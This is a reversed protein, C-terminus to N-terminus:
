TRVNKNTKGNNGTTKDNRSIGELFTKQTFQFPSCLSDNPPPVVGRARGYRRCRGSALTRATHVLFADSYFTTMLNFYFINIIYGHFISQGQYYTTLLQSTFFCLYHVFRLILFSGILVSIIYQICLNYMKLM